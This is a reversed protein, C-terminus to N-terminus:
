KKLYERKLKDFKEFVWDFLPNKRARGPFFQWLQHEEPLMLVINDPNLKYKAYLGKPLIHSFQWHWQIHGPEFLPKGSVQSVHEVTDWIYEFLQSQNKFEM